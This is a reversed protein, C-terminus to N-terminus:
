LWEYVFKKLIMKNVSLCFSIDELENFCWDLMGNGVCLLVWVELWKRVINVFNNKLRLFLFFGKKFYVCWSSCFECKGFVVIM